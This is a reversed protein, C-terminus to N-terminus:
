QYVIVYCSVQEILPFIRSAMLFRIYYACLKLLFNSSMCHVRRVKMALIETIKLFSGDFSERFLESINSINGVRRQLGIM